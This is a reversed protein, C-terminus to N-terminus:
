DSSIIRSWAVGGTLAQVPESPSAVVVGVVAGVVVFAVFQILYQTGKSNPFLTEALDGFGLAKKRLATSKAWLLASGVGSYIYMDIGSSM